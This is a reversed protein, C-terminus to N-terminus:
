GSRRRNATPSIASSTPCRWASAPIPSPRSRKPLARALSLGSARSRPDGRAATAFPAVFIPMIEVSNAGPISSPTSAAPPTSLPSRSAPKKRSRAGSRRRGREEGNELRGMMLSWLGRSTNKNRQLVLVAGGRRARGPDGGRRRPQPGSDRRQEHRRSRDTLPKTLRLSDEQYGLSATFAGRGGTTPSFMWASFASDRVM